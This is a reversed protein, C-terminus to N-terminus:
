VTWHFIFLIPFFIEVWLLMITIWNHLVHVPWKGCNIRLAIIYECNSILGNSFDSLGNFYKKIKTSSEYPMISANFIITQFLLTLLVNVHFFNFKIWRIDPKIGYFFLSPKEFFIPNQVESIHLFFGYYIDVLHGM